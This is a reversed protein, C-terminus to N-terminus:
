HVCHIKNGTNRANTAVQSEIGKRDVQIWYEVIKGDQIRYVASAIEIVPLGSPAIGDASGVHCGSQKWRAYVKDGDALLETIEFHFDGYIHRFDKVHAAYDAPNRAITTENESNIQHALVEPALYNSAHDPSKGSRVDNLFQHVIDKPTLNALESQGIVAALATPTTIFGTNFLLNTWIKM